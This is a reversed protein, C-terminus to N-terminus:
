SPPYAILPLPRPELCAQSVDCGEGLHKFLLNRSGFTAGCHVCSHQGPVRLQAPARLGSAVQDCGNTVVASDSGSAVADAEGSGGNSGEHLGGEERNTGQHRRWARLVTVDEPVGLKGVHEALAPATAFAFGCIVCRHLSQPPAGRAQCSAACGASEAAATEAAVLEVGVAAVGQEARSPPLEQEAELVVQDAEKHAMRQGSAPRRSCWILEVSRDVKMDLDGESRRHEYGYKSLWHKSGLLGNRFRKRAAWGEEASATPHLRGATGTAGEGPLALGGMTAVDLIAAEPLGVRRAHDAVSWAVPQNGCLTLHICGGSASVPLLEMASALFHAILVEHRRAHAQVDALDALGLHPHNFFIHDQTGLPPSASGLTTADIGFLVAAGRAKLEAVIAASAAYTEVLGVETLLTTATLTIASGYARAIALSFSLDGDGVTLVRRRACPSSSGDM